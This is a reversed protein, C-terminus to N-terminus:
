FDLAASDTVGLKQMNLASDGAALIATYLATQRGADGYSRSETINRGSRLAGNPGVFCFVKDKGAITGALVEAPKWFKTYRGGGDVRKYGRAELGACLRDHFTHQAM